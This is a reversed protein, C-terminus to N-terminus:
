VHKKEKGEKDKIAAFLTDYLVLASQSREKKECDISLNGLTVYDMIKIREKKLNKQIIEKCKDNPETAVGNSNKQYM